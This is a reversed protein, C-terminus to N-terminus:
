EVNQVQERLKELEAKIEVVIRSVTSDSAKASITNVERNIEQILFDLRRGLADDVSLYERFQKLHSGLRVVEETIDSKEAFIAVEQAVRGEDVSLDEVLAQINDNLRKRYEHALEPSRKRVEEVYGELLDLRKLFDAEIADGESIRMQDLSDLAQKLATEVGPKLRAADVERPKLLIVDKMRCLAEMRVDQELGFEEALQKFIGLYSDVLPANLELGYPTEEGRSDVQVSVEVRGRRVRSAIIDRLDKDLLQYNKPIRLIIDRYRNNLSKIEVSFLTDEFRCEGRGYATMSKIL